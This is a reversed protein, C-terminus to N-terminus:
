RPLLRSQWRRRLSQRRHLLKFDSRNHTLVARGHQTVFTLVDDDAIGQNANGAESSTLVDHGMDRLHQVAALPFNENAYLDAMDCRKKM